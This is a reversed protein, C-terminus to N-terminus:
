KSAAGLEEMVPELAKGEAPKEGGSGKLYHDFWEMMRLGYDKQAAAKRNGHGEGPYLVLRVPVKGYTKLYRYLTMSQSPHVRTDDEGHLILIPTRAQEVYRIPSREAYFDWNDWPWKRAHVLYMENPIDTTGFKSFNESIGVFMVSAAFHQTHKTALWASAYGGYSGGTVGVKKEDVLGTAILHKVGDVLDDFEAGAYDSQGMKSFDVGRGTSGRYNPYFIAYGQAAGFQGPSAYRTLWGNSYHAEPGGHVVLILPYRTGPKEDLPRILLGDITVGDRAKYTVIEQRALKVDAMWPNSDSVRALQTAGRTWRFAERPHAPSDAIIAASGGDKALSLTYMAPGGKGLLTRPKAGPALDIEALYTEVSEHGVFVITDADAFAIAEADGQWGPLLDRTAGTAADAVVLRGANPDHIDQAAIVALHKGDPAWAVDGIKGITAVKARVTGTAPDVIHVIRRMLDDDVLPTPALAVSIVDGAPSWALESASGLLALTTSEKTVGEAALTAVHVRTFREQEEYVKAKFGKKELKEREAPKPEKALFAVRKGDPAFAFASIDENHEVLLRAEGGDIPITWIAKKAKEGGRKALFALGRQDPLFRVHSVGADDTVYPRPAREGPGAVWLQTRPPGDDETLPDRPVLVTYAVASGDAALRADAVSRAKLAQELTLGATAGFAPVAALVVLAVALATAQAFPARPLPRRTTQVPSAPM